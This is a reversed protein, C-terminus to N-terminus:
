NKKPEKRFRREILAKYAKREKKTKLDHEFLYGKSRVGNVIKKLREESWEDEACKLSSLAIWSPDSYEKGRYKEEYFRRVQWAFLDAAQLPLFTKEDKHMPRSGVLPKLVPPLIKLGFRWTQQIMESEKGQEDFIFDVKDNIHWDNNYQYRLVTGIINQACLHYPHDMGRALKGKFVREYLEHEVVEKIALPRYDMILSVFKKVKADRETTSFRAFEDHCHWAEKMKFYDIKPPADLIAQWHDAFVSWQYASLIFGALVFVPKVGKGSDDVAAQLIVLKRKRRVASPYGSVIADVQESALTL